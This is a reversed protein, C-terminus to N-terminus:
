PIVKREPIVNPMTDNSKKYISMKDFALSDPVLCPINDPPLKYIKSTENTAVLVATDGKPSPIFSLSDKQIAPLTNPITQGNTHFFPIAILVSVILILKKGM